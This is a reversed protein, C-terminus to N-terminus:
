IVVKMIKRICVIFIIYYIIMFILLIIGLKTQIFPLFYTPSIISIVFAFLFPMSLLTYIVIKSGSTLSNLQLKLKQKAFMSNEISEFIKIINGGNKNLITLSATLYKADDLGTRQTFRKFVSELELGYLMELNMKSFEDGIPGKVENSVISIAQTISRGAKFSNNMITIASLFDKELKKQYAKYKIILFIDLIFFGLVFIIVAEEPSLMELRLAKAFLAFIVCTFGIIIKSSLIDLGTSNITTIKTYKDLKKAYDSAFKSKRLIKDIKFLLKKYVKIIKDVISSNNNSLHKLTYPEIRKEIKLTKRWKNIQYLAFILIAVLLIQVAFLSNFSNVVNVNISETTINGAKDSVTYTITKIGTKSFDINEYNSTITNTLDGDQSDKATVTIDPTQGKELEINQKDIIIVPKEKDVIFTSSEIDENLNSAKIKIQYKGTETLKYELTTLSKGTDIIKGDKYLYYTYETNLPPIYTILIDHSVPGINSNINFVGVDGM